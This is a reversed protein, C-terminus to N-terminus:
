ITCAVERQGSGARVAGAPIAFERHHLLDVTGAMVRQGGGICLRRDEEALMHGVGHLVACAERSAINNSLAPDVLRAAEGSTQHRMSALLVVLIALMSAGVFLHGTVIVLEKFTLITFVGLGIQVLTLVPLARALSRARADSSRWFRVSVLLLVTAVVLALARHFMHLHVAPHVDLPWLAGRCLPLDTCVLGAGTHRVAAGLLIQLFLIAAAVWLLPREGPQAPAFGTPPSLRLTLVILTAFVLMSNALHLVLITPPLRYIVTAGGLLGQVMVLILALVALRAVGRARLLVALCGCLGVLVLAGPIGPVEGTRQVVSAVRISGGLVLPAFCAALAWGLLPLGSRALLALALVLTTLGLSTAILRHTHEVAVGGAMRPLPSGFCTPWDPCALGSDTNTVVGGAVILLLTSCAAAFATRRIWPMGERTV